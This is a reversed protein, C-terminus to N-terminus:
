WQRGTHIIIAIVTDMARTAIITTVITIIMTRIVTTITTGNKGTTIGVIGIEKMPNTVVGTTMEEDGNRPVLRQYLV